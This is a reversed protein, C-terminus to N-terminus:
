DLHQYFILLILSIYTLANDRFNEFVVSLLIAYSQVYFDHYDGLNNMKFEKFVKEARRYDVDTIAEMNLSSYFDEKNTLLIENFREWNDMYKYPYVGKRLLLIVKNIDGDCFKYTNAFRNILDKNFDKNHNKNCKSCKFILQDDKVSMNDLCSKCDICKDSHVIESLNDVLNSLLSAM